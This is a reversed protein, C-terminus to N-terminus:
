AKWGQGTVMFDGGPQISRFHQTWYARLEDETTGTDYPPTTVPLAREVIVEIIGAIRSVLNPWTEAFIPHLVAFIEDEPLRYFGFGKLRYGKRAFPDVFNIEIRGDRRINARTRPSRIDAFAIRRDDIVLMTGKPSLNPSGDPDITAVFGLRQETIIRKVDQTLM